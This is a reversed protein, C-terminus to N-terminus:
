ILKRVNIYKARFSKSSVSVQERTQLNLETKKRIQIGNESRARKIHRQADRFIEYVAIDIGPARPLGRGRWARLFTATSQLSQTGVNLELLRM